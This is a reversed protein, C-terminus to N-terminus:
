QKTYTKGDLGIILQGKKLLNWTSNWANISQISNNTKNTKTTQSLVSKNNDILGQTEKDFKIRRGNVTQQPLLSKADELNIIKTNEYDAVNKYIKNGETDLKPVTKVVQTTPDIINETVEIKKSPTIKVYSAQKGTSSKKEFLVGTVFATKDTQWMEQKGTRQDTVLTGSKIVSPKDPTFSVAQGYEVNKDGINLSVDHETPITFQQKEEDLRIKEYERNYNDIKELSNKAITNYGDKAENYFENFSQYGKSFIKNYETDELVPMGNKDLDLNGDDKKKFSLKTKDQYLSFIHNKKAEEDQVINGKDDQKLFLGSLTNNDWVKIDSNSKKADAIYQQLTGQADKAAKQDDQIIKTADVGTIFKSYSETVKKWDDVMEDPSQNPKSFIKATNNVIAFANERTSKSSNPDNIFAQAETYYSNYNKIADKMTEQFTVMKPHNPIQASPIGENKLENAISIVNNVYKPKFNNNAELNKLSGIAYDIKSAKVLADRQMQQEQQGKLVAAFPFLAGTPAITTFFGSGQQVADPRTPFFDANDYNVAPRGVRDLPVGGTVSPNETNAFLNDIKTRDYPKNNATVLDTQEVPVDQPQRPINNM